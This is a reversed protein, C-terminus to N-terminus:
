GGESTLIYNLIATSSKNFLFPISHVLGARALTKTNWVTQSSEWESGKIRVDNRAQKILRGPPPQILFFLRIINELAAKFIECNNRHNIPNENNKGIDRVLGGISEKSVLGVWLSQALCLINRRLLDNFYAYTCVIPLQAAAVKGELQESSRINYEFLPLPYFM